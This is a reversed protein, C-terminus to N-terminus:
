AQRRERIILLGMWILLSPLVWTWFFVPYGPDIKFIYAALWTFPNFFIYYFYNFGMPGPALTIILLLLIAMISPASVSLLLKWKQELVRMRTLKGSFLYATALIILCSISFVLGKEESLLFVALAFGAVIIHVVMSWMLNYIMRKEGRYRTM